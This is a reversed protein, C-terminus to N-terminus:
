VAQEEQNTQHQELAGETQILCCIVVSACACLSPVILFLWPRSEKSSEFIQFLIANFLVIVVIDLISFCAYISGLKNKGPEQVVETSDSDILRENEVNLEKTNEVYKVISNNIVCSSFEFTAELVLMLLIGLLYNRFILAVFSALVSGLASIALQAKDIQDFRRKDHKMKLVNKTIYYFIKIGGFSCLAGYISIFSILYNLNIADFNFIIMLYAVLINSSAPAIAKLMKFATLLFVNRRAVPESKPLALVKFQSLFNLFYNDEKQVAVTASTQEETVEAKPKKKGDNLAIYVICIEIATIYINVKLVAYKGFKKIFFTTFIPVLFAVSGIISGLYNFYVIRKEYDEFLDTIGSQGIVMLVSLGGGLNGFIQLPLYTKFAFSYNSSMTYLMIGGNALSFVFFLLTTARTGHSDLVKGFTSVIFMELTRLVIGSWKMYSLYDNTNSLSIENSSDGLSSSVIKNFQLDLFTTAIFLQQASYVTILITYILFNPNGNFKLRKWDFKWEHEEKSIENEELNTNYSFNNELLLHIDGPTNSIATSIANLNQIILEATLGKESETNM